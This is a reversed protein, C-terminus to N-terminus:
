DGLHLQHKSYTKTMFMTKFNKNEASLQYLKILSQSVISGNFSELLFFQRIQSLPCWLVFHQMSLIVNESKPPFKLITDNWFLYLFAANSM